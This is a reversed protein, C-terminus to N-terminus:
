AGKMWAIIKEIMRAHPLDPSLALDDPRVSAAGRSGDIYAVPLRATRALAFAPHSADAGNLGLTLIRGAGLTSLVRALEQPAISGSVFANPHSMLRRDDFTTGAVVIDLDPQTRFFATALGRLLTFESAKARGPIVVLVRGADARTHDVDAVEPLPLERATGDDGDNSRALRLREINIRAPRLPDAKAFSSSEARFTPFRHDLIGLNKLVLARKADRFSRSGAHGVYVDAACVNRFSKERARLCFDVDELYGREFAEALHGVSALCARTIYLCFGTGNPINVVRNHNALQALRDLKVVDDYSGLANEHHPIPFDSIGSNNSLPVVTGIDDASHAAQQLRRVFGPPVLTDANLLLVDSDQISALARNISGVFGLNVDNVILEFFPLHCITQLHETIAHDPSADDVMLIRFDRGCGPDALLSDLCAKTADVDDYVPIIVTPLANYGRSAVAPRSPPADAAVLNPAIRRSYFCRGDIGLSVTQPSASSPRALEFSTAKIEETALAHFPDAALPSTLRHDSSAISLEIEEGADWAVWGRVYRDFILLNAHRRRGNAFLLKVADRLRRVDTEASILSMAASQRQEFSGWVFLRRLAALDNPAIRLADLLDARAAACNGLHHSADARLVYCHALSPPEIRCRRDALKFATLYDREALAKASLVELAQHPPLSTRGLEDLVAHM